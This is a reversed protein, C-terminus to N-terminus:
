PKNSATIERYRLMEKEAGTLRGQQKLLQSFHLHYGASPLQKLYEPLASLYYRDDKQLLTAMLEILEDGALWHQKEAKIRRQTVPSLFEIVPHDDSNIPFEALQGRLPELSGVYYALLPVGAEEGSQRLIGAQRSLPKKSRHGLLGVIPKLASFNGRWVTIQPFVEQMTRMVIFMESKSLQYAPLWQMFLGGEELRQFVTRYHELSYLNGTGAKWPVFLDSIIVDYSERTGRLYNRGDENIVRARPDYFLDNNYRGFYQASAEIVEPLLETVVLKEIPLSLTAGASIGTGLGLVYVSRPNDHLLLPLRGQFQELRYSGTGGLTYYNDVKIKLQEGRRIVAVTGASGEWVQLLSEEDVVPDVKVVPLRGTDLLSVLLLIMAAPIYAARVDHRRSRDLWLWAALVYLIAMLRIGSWLGIFDLIFFGALLAGTIAGVTNIAVLHGVARGAVLASRESLKLLFPFVSGLLFLPPGMVLLAQLMVKAVYDRWDENGGIYHLNDSLWIFEFPTLAVLLGGGLLLIFMSSVPDLRFHMLRNALMSGLSMSFLFMMLIIAYTYVSNQLVQAFMRGWLVQLSLMAMGSLFALVQLSMFGRTTRSKVEEVAAHAPLERATAIAVVAILLTAAMVGLYSSNFGLLPPLVFGALFVGAVAGLTNVAYLLSVKKGLQKAQRVVAHSVVPLTGGMFYAPPFLIGLSLLFKVAMFLVRNDGFLAFLYPYLWAYGDLILFYGGACVAVCLELIGYLQLPKAHRQVRRGWHYSGVALGLFFAALTTAMAHSANGFLLGLEKMWLLEYVLATAGTLFFLLHLLLFNRNM